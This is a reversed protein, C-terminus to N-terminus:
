AVEGEPKKRILRLIGEAATRKEEADVHSYHETMATTVHGTISRTVEGSAIRRLLDNATRRLGQSTFRRDVDIEKLCAMFAKRMCASGHHPKGVRSPFVWGTDLFRHQKRLLHQRWERLVGQLEDTLPVHVLNGTKTTDVIGRWQARRVRIVRRQEDIDEWRLASVEGFRRAMAFQTFAMAYWQPYHEKLVGLFRGMEAASLINYPADDEYRAREPLARVRRTPDAFGYQASADAMMVKLLRLYGNVTAAAHTEAKKAMWLQVDEQHLKELYYDGLDALIVDLDYGYRARTSAKLTPLRGLLWSRAFDKLQVHELAREGKEIAAMMEVRAKIAEQESSCEVVRREDLHKGTKPDRKKIRILYAGKRIERIGRLVRQTKTRM